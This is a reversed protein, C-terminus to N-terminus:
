GSKLVSRKAEDRGEGIGLGNGMFRRVVEERDKMAEIYEGRVGGSWVLGQGGKEIGEKEDKVSENIFINENRFLERM